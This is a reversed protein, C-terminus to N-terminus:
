RSRILNIKRRQVQALYYVKQITTVDDAERESVRIAASYGSMRSADDPKRLLRSHHILKQHYAGPIMM